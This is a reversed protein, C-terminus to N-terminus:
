HAVVQEQIYSVVEDLSQLIKESHYVLWPSNQGNPSIGIVRKAKQWAYFIEMSTGVSLKVQNVLLIDSNEILEKDEEVIRKYNEGEVGRYDRKIPDIVEFDRLEQKAKLRWDMCEHDECQFIPGALYVKM